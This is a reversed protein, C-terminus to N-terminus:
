KLIVIKQSLYNNSTRIVVSYIGSSVNNTSIMLDIENNATSKYNNSYVLIGNMNYLEISYKEDTIGDFKVVIQDNKLSYFCQFANLQHISKRCNINNSYEYKGDFDIQKLRYYTSFYPSLHQITPYQIVINSNGAGSVTKLENWIIGDSSFELTFSKNNQENATAWSIENLGSNKNYNAYFNRLGIPLPWCDTVDVVKTTTVSCGVADTVTLSVVYTGATSYYYTPPSSGTYTDGNGYDWSYIYNPITTGSTLSLEAICGIQTLNEDFYSDSQQPGIVATGGFQITVGGTSGTYNQVMLAYTQGAVLSPTSVNWQPMASCSTPPATCLEAACIDNVIAGSSPLLGFSSAATNGFGTSGTCGSYDCGITSGGVVTASSACGSSTINLFMFDYDDGGLCELAAGGCANVMSYMSQPDVNLTITGSSSATFTYWQSNQENGICAWNEEFLGDGLQLNPLTFGNGSCLSVADPCDQGPQPPPPQVIDICLNFTGATAGNETDASVLVWYRENIEVMYEVTDTWTTGGVGDGPLNSCGTGALIAFSNLSSCIEANQHDFVLYQTTGNQTINDFILQIYGTTTAHFSIWVDGIGSGMNACGVDPYGSWTMGATTANVCNGM